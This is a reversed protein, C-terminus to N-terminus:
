VGDIVEMHFCEPLHEILHSFKYFCPVQHLAEVAWNDGWSCFACNIPLLSRLKEPFSKCLGLVEPGLISPCLSHFYSPDEFLSFSALNFSISHSSLLPRLTPSLFLFITPRLSM